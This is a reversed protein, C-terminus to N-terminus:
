KAGIRISTVTKGDEAVRVAVRVGSRLDSRRAPKGDCSYSTRPTLRFSADNSETTRIVLHSEDASKVTGLYNHIHGAHALAAAAIATLLLSLTLIRRM